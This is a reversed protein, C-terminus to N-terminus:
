PRTTIALKTTVNRGLQNYSIDDTDYEANSTYLHKTITMVWSQSWSIM